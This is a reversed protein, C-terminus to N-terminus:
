VRNVSRGLVRALGDTFLNLGIVLFALAIAPAFLAMPASIIAPRNESIMLGWEPTPPRVGLGLFGLAGIFIPAYGARVGFEVLVVGTANPLLENWVISWVSEGRTRAVTVFDRTVLDVAVARTMRAIRPAYVFAVVFILLPPSGALNPGAAAILLLALVLFPISIVVDITRMIGQDVWGGVFGSVLGILSGIITALLTSTLALYLDVRTGYVVRSFVDRGLQDTGFPHQLSPTEFPKGTAVQSYNYPAWLPGTLAVFLYFLLIVGGTLM